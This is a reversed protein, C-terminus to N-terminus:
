IAYRSGLLTGPPIIAIPADLSGSFVDVTETQARCRMVVIGAKASETGTRQAYHRAATGRRQPQRQVPRSSALHRRARAIRSATAAARATRAGRITGSRRRTHM